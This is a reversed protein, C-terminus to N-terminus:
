GIRAPIGSRAAHERARQELLAYASRVQPARQRPALSAVRRKLEDWDNEGVDPYDEWDLDEVARALIERAMTDLALYYEDLRRRTVPNGKPM